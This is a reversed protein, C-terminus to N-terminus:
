SSCSGRFRPGMGDLASPQFLGALERRSLKKLARHSRVRAASTAIGMMEGIEKFGFGLEHHLYVTVGKEPHLAALARYLTLRGPIADGEPRSFFRDSEAEWRYERGLRKRNSRLHMLAM